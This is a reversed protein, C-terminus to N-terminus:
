KDPEAPTAKVPLDMPIELFPSGTGYLHHYAQYSGVVRKVYDRTQTYPMDEVWADFSQGPREKLWRRISGPGANYGPIALGARNDFDDLLDALFSAGVPINVEAKFLDGEGGLSIGEKKAYSKATPWMLQTLGLAGAWSRIGKNFGSEERMLALLLYPDMRHKECAVRVTSEFAPPFALVLWPLWNDDVKLVDEGETIKRAIWHAESWFGMQELLASHLLTHSRDLTTVDDVVLLNRALDWLGARYLVIARHLDDGALNLDVRPTAEARPPPRTLLKARQPVEQRLVQAALLGYWHLPSNKALNELETLGAERTAPNLLRWKGAWYHAQLRSSEKLSRTAALTDLISIAQPIRDQGAETWALRWAGESAMDGDPYRKLQEGYHAQAEPLKGQDQLITGSLYLADDAMSHSPFLKVLTAYDALAANDEGKRAHARASLFLAVVRDEAGCTPAAASTLPPLSDSYRRDKQLSRGLDLAVDCILPDGPALESLLAQLKESATKNLHNALYVKAQSYREPSSPPPPVVGLAALSTLHAAATTAAKSTPAVMQVQQYLRAADALHDPGGIKEHAEALKLWVRPDVEAASKGRTQAELPKLADIPRGAKILAQAEALQAALYWPSHSPVRRLTQLGEQLQGAATLAEGLNRDILDAVERFHPQAAKLDSVAEKARGLEVLSVGRALRWAANNAHAGDLLQFALAEDGVSRMKGVMEAGVYSSRLEVVYPLAQHQPSVAIVPHDAYTRVPPATVTPPIGEQAYCTLAVVSVLPLILWGRRDVSGGM